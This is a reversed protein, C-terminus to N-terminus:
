TENLPSIKIKVDFEPHQTLFVKRVKYSSSSNAAIFAAGFAMSEDGNLHVNLTDVHAAQKLIEAAKPVRIGGGLIEVQTIEEHNIKAKRLAMEVPKAVRDFLHSAADEFEQRSIEFKLTVDDVLEQVKVLSVKNASLIEKVNAAEKMLRKVARQNTRVDAKGKRQPMSNFKDAFINFLVLDFDNGGLNRDSAEGLVEIHEYTKNKADAVASYRVVSVETDTAGMNYYLINIDKESDLRDIGFM